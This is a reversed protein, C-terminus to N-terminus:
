YPSISYVSLTCDDEQFHQGKTSGEQITALAYSLQNARSAASTADRTQSGSYLICTFFKKQLIFDGCAEPVM